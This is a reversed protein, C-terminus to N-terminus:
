GSLCMASDFSQSIHKRSAQRMPLAEGVPALTKTSQSQTKPVTPLLSRKVSVWRTALRGMGGSELESDEIRSLWEQVFRFICVVSVPDKGKGGGPPSSGFLAERILRTAKEREKGKAADDQMMPVSLVVDALGMVERLAQVIFALRGSEGTPLLSADLPCEVLRHFVDFVKSSQSEQAAGQNDCM